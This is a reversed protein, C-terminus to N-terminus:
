RIFAEAVDAVSVKAYHLFAAVSALRVIEKALADM